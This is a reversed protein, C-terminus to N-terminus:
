KAGELLLRAMLAIHEPTPPQNREFDTRLYDALKRCAIEKRKAPLSPFNRAADEIAVAALTHLAALFRPSRDPADPVHESFGHAPAAMGEGTLLWAPTTKLARALGLMDRFTQTRGSLLSWVTGQSTGMAKALRTPNLGLEKMRRNVRDKLKEM